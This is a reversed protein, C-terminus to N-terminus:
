IQLKAYPGRPGSGRVMYIIATRHNFERVGRPRCRYYLYAVVEPTSTLPHRRDLFNEDFTQVVPGANAAAATAAAADAAMYWGAARKPSQDARKNGKVPETGAATRFRFRRAINM